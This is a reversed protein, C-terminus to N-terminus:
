VASVREGPKPGTAPPGAFAQAILMWDHMVDGTIKLNTDDVHRRQVVVLCFDEATGCISEAVDEPGWTWLEGSPGTLEVRFAVDPVKMGRNAYSWGFTSVGLHSVHRLRDTPAREIGLTDVVDQGHAWTEMLRATAFSLASMPPGYWPLRDKRNLSELTAILAKREKRWFELIKAPAETRIKQQSEMYKEQNQFVQELHKKFAEADTAALRATSDFYVLHAIETKISWGMFPTILNWQADSLSAVVADLWECEDRLDRCIHQM